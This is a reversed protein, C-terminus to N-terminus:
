MSYSVCVYSCALYLQTLILICKFTCAPVIEIWCHVGTSPNDSKSIVEKERHAAVEDFVGVLWSKESYFCVAWGERKKGTVCACIHVFSRRLHSRGLSISAPYDVVWVSIFFLDGSFGMQFFKWGFIWWENRVLFGKKANGCRMTELWVQLHKGM